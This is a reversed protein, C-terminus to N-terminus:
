RLRGSRTVKGPSPRLTDGRIQALLDVDIREAERRPDQFPNAQHVAEDWLMDADRPAIGHREALARWDFPEHARRARGDLQGRFLRGRSM